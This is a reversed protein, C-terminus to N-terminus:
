LYSAPRIFAGLDDPHYISEPRGWEGRVKMMFESPTDSESSLEQGFLKKLSADARPRNVLTRCFGYKMNSLGVGLLLMFVYFKSKPVVDGAGSSSMM